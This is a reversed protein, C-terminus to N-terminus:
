LGTERHYERVWGRLMKDVDEPEEDSSTIIAYKPNSLQVLDPLLKQLHGHYPVKLITTKLNPYNSYESLREDQADGTFLMSFRRGTNFAAFTFLYTRLM